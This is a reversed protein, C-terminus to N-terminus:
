LLPDESKTVTTGLVFPAKGSRVSQVFITASLFVWVLFFIIIEM